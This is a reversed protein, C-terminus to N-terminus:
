GGLGSSFLVSGIGDRWAKVRPGASGPAIEKAERGDDADLVGFVEEVFEEMPLPKLGKVLDAHEAGLETGGVYPPVLEIVKVNTDKLAQRVGVCYYHVAAKTACYTPFLSGVPVFGLGSGTIMFTTETNQALLRPIIHHGLVMPATVNLTVEEAIKADTTSSPDKINAAYQLGGNILVTDIDSYLSFIKDVNGPISPLDAMDFAYTELGPLDSKLESLRHERRGTIIVRKNMSHFRRALAEGIGSTAGIILITHM